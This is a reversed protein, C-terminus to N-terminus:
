ASPAVFLGTSSIFGFKQSGGTVGNVQWTVATNASGTVAATFQQTRFDSVSATAPQVLVQVASASVVTITDSGSKTSNAQSTATVTVKAPNPVSAPATYLGINSITGGGSVSWTVAQNNTGTVTATFTLTKGVAVTSQPATVTVSVLSSPPATNSSGSCGSFFLVIPLFFLGTATRTM